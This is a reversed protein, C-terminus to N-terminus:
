RWVTLHWRYEQKEMAKGAEEWRYGNKRTEWGEGAAVRVDRCVIQAVNRCLDFTRCRRRGCRELLGCSGDWVLFLKDVDDGCDDREGDRSGFSLLGYSM